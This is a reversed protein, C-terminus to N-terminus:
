QRIIPPGSPATSRSSGIKAMARAPLRTPRACAPGCRRARARGLVAVQVAARVAGAVEHLHDVVPDLVPDHGGVGLPEVDELVGVGALDLALGVGLGRRELLGLVVLVVEVQGLDGLDPAAAAHDAGPQEVQGRRRHLFRGVEGVEGAPDRVGALAAPGRDRRDVLAHRRRDQGRREVLAEGRAPEVVEAVLDERRHALLEAAVVLLRTTLTAVLELDDGVFPRRRPAGGLQDGGGACAATSSRPAKASAILPPRVGQAISAIRPSRSSIGQASVSSKWTSSRIAEGPLSSRLRVWM